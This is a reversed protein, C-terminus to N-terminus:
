SNQLSQDDCFRRRVAHRLKFKTVPSPIIMTERAPSTSGIAKRMKIIVQQTPQTARPMEYIGVDFNAIKSSPHMLRQPPGISMLTAAIDKKYPGRIM